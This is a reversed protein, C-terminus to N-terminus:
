GLPPAGGHSRPAQHHQRGPLLRGGHGPGPVDRCGHVAGVHRLQHCLDLLDSGSSSMQTRVLRTSPERSALDGLYSFCLMFLTYAGGGLGYVVSFYVPATVSHVLSFRCTFVQTHLVLWYGFWAPDELRPPLSNGCLLPVHQLSGPEQIPCQLVPVPASDGSSPWSGAM